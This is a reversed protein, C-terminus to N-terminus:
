PLFCLYVNLWCHAAWEGSIDCSFSRGVTERVDDFSTLLRIQRLSEGFTSAFEQKVNARIVETSRNNGNLHLAFTFLKETPLTTRAQKISQTLEHLVPNNLQQLVCVSNLSCCECVSVQLTKRREVSYEIFIPHEDIVSRTQDNACLRWYLEMHKCNVSEVGLYVNVTENSQELDVDRYKHKPKTKLWNRFSGIRRLSLNSKHRFTNNRKVTVSDASQHHDGNPVGNVGNVSGNLTGNNASGNQIAKKKKLKKGTQIKMCKTVTSGM